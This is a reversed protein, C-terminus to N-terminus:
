PFDNFFRRLGRLEVLSGYIDPFPRSAIMVAILSDEKASNSALLQFFRKEATKSLEGPPKEKSLTSMLTLLKTSDDIAGLLKVKAARIGRFSRSVDEVKVEEGLKHMRFNLNRAQREVDKFDDKDGDRAEQWEDFIESEQSIMVQYENFFSLINQYQVQYSWIQIFLLIFFLALVTILIRTKSIMWVM